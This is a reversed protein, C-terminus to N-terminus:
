FRITTNEMKFQESKYIRVREKFHSLSYNDKVIKLNDFLDYLTIDKKTASVRLGRGISQLVRISSKGIWAFVISHINKINVGTSFVGLSAIIIAGDMNEIEPRCQERYKVDIDGNFFYVKRSPDHEVMEKVRALLQKGHEKKEYLILTNKKQSAAIRAAFINRKSSNTLWKAEEHYTMGHCLRKDEASYDLKINKITLQAVDGREMLQKTTITRHQQGFMGELILKNCEVGGITGTTGLRYPVHDLKDMISCLSKSKFSHAEDGIVAGFQKFYDRRMKYISQWTSIVIKKDTRKTGGDYIKHCKSLANWGNTSSYDAFDGFMQNVLSTTPVIILIKKDSPLIKEWYRVTLYIMLSKGSATPSILLKRRSNIVSHVAKAQYDKPKISTGGARLDLTKLWKVTLEPPIQKSPSTMNQPRDVMLDYSRCFKLVYPLLGIYILGTFRDYLRKKGDWLNSQYLKSFKAGTVDYEFYSSLNHADNEDKFVVRMYTENVKSITVDAM